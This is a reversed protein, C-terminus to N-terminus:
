GYPWSFFHQTARLSRGIELFLIFVIPDPICGIKTLNPPNKERKQSFLHFICGFKTSKPAKKKFIILFFFLRISQGLYESIVSSPLVVIKKEKRKKKKKGLSWAHFCTEIFSFCSVFLTSCFVEIFYILEFFLNLFIFFYFFHFFFFYFNYFILHLFKPWCFGPIKRTKVLVNRHRVSTYSKHM